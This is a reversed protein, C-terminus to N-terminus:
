AGGRPTLRRSPTPQRGHQDAPRQLQGRRQGRGGLHDGRRVFGSSLAVHITDTSGTNGTTVVNNFQDEITIGVSVTGGATITAAPQASVVLKNPLGPNVTVNNTTASTVGPATSDSATIIYSGVTNIQLGSFNAVGNVAAVSTTGAAFNGSSLAVHITDTSGTGSTIPNGFQDEVTVGVSVTGGATITAAPQTTVALKSEGSPNVTVSNTTATAVGGRSTDSATITFSGATNIQLGSFTAVGNVAAVSTTGAAFSGSSLAVHITDTSGTNGTTVVNNFQDEITIGVSVAGGATITTAPQASVVLQNPLGPNVTFNNTTASTVGPATSDSATISYPGGAVNIKLTNFTAVGNVASVTTTGSAFSGGTLTVKIADTSGTGITVVNNFQDEVTVGVTFAQGATAPNPPQATIALKSGAAPVMAFGSTAGSVVFTNVTATATITPSGSKTDAYFFPSSTSSGSPITVTAATTGGSTPTFFTSGASSSSLQLSVPAGSNTIPNGFQDEVKVQFPGVNATTGVTHNGSVTSTFVLQSPPAPTVTFSTAASTVGPHPIDTATITYSGPSNIQLNNFTAVGNSAAVTQTTGGTSFTGGTLTIRINDTSGTNGTTITNGFQDEVTVGVGFTTGATFTSPPVTTLVLKNEPAPTITETQLGSQLGSSSATIIPSGTTTDGYYFSVSSQGSPITVSTIPSGGSAAAFIGAASSSGLNVTLAGGPDANGFADQEQITIKGLTASTSASGSVPSTTFAIKAPPATSITYTASATCPMPSCIADTATVTYTGVASMSCNSFSFIGNNEIGSCNNSLSGPGSASLTVSSADSYVINNAADEIAIIPQPSVAANITGTGPNTTTPQLFVLKTPTTGPTPSLPQPDYIVTSISSTYSASTLTVTWQQPNTPVSCTTSWGSGNWYQVTPSGTALHFSGTLNFVPSYSTPCSTFANDASDQIQSIVEDTAARLSADENALQRHEASSKISTGFATLLAIATIGLIVIAILVEVLTDGTDSSRTDKTKPGPAQPHDNRRM